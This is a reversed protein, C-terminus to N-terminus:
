VMGGKVILSAFCLSCQVFYLGGLIGYFGEDETTGDDDCTITELMRHQLVGRGETRGCDYVAICRTMM